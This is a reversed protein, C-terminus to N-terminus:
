GTHLVERSPASAAKLIAKFLTWRAWATVSAGAARASRGTHCASPALARGPAWPLEPTLRGTIPGLWHCRPGIM